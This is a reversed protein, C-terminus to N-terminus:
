GNEKARCLCKYCLGGDRVIFLFPRLTPKMERVIEKHVKPKHTGKIKTIYNNRPLTPTVVSQQFTKNGYENHGVKGVCLIINNEEKYTM